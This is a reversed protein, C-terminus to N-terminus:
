VNLDLKENKVIGLLKIRVENNSRIDFVEVLIRTILNYAYGIFSTAKLDFYISHDDLDRSYSVGVQELFRILRETYQEDSSSECFRFVMNSKSHAFKLLDPFDELPLVEIRMSERLVILLCFNETSNYYRISIARLADKLESEKLDEHIRAWKSDPKIQEIKKLDNRYSNLGFGVLYAWSVLVPTQWNDDTNFLISSIYLTTFGICLLVIVYNLIKILRM